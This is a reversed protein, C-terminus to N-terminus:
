TWPRPVVMSRAVCSTPASSDSSYLVFYIIVTVFRSFFLYSSAFLFGCSSSIACTCALVAFFLESMIHTWCDCTFRRVADLCTHINELWDESKGEAATASGSATVSGSTSVSAPLAVKISQPKTVKPIVGLTTSGAHSEGLPWKIEFEQVGQFLNAPLSHHESGLDQTSSSCSASSTSASASMTSSASAAVNGCKNTGSEAGTGGDPDLSSVSDTAPGPSHQSDEEPCTREPSSPGRAARPHSSNINLSTGDPLIIDCNDLPVIHKVKHKKDSSAWIIM